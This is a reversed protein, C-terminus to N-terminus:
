PDVEEVKVRSLTLAVRTVPSALVPKDDHAMFYTASEYIFDEAKSPNGKFIGPLKEKTAIEKRREEEEEELIMKCMYKLIDPSFMTDDWEELSDHHTLFNLIIDGNFNTVM